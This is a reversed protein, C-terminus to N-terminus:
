IFHRQAIATRRGSWCSRRTAVSRERRHHESPTSNAQQFPSTTRRYVGLRAVDLAQQSIDVANFILKLDPRASRIRWAV